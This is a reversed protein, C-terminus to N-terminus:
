RILFLFVFHNKQRYELRLVHRSQIQNSKMYILICYFIGATHKLKKVSKQM